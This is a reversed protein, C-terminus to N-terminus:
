LSTSPSPVPFAGDEVWEEAAALVGMVYRPEVVLSAGFFQAESPATHLLWDAAEGTEPHILWLSEHNEARFHEDLKSM